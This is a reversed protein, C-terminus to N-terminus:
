DPNFLNAPMHLNGMKPMGRNIGRGGQTKPFGKTAYNTEHVRGWTGVKM